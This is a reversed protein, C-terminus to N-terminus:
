RYLVETIDASLRYADARPVALAIDQGQRRSGPRFYTDPLRKIATLVRIQEKGLPRGQEDSLTLAVVVSIVSQSGHNGLRTPIVLRGDQYRAPQLLLEVGGKSLQLVPKDRGPEVRVSAPEVVVSAPAVPVPTAAGSPVDNLYRWTFDDHLVAQRGDPLTVRQEAAPAQGAGLTALLLIGAPILRNM